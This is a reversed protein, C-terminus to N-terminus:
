EQQIRLIDVLTGYVWRIEKKASDEDIAHVYDYRHETKGTLPNTCELEVEFIPLSKDGRIFMIKEKTM